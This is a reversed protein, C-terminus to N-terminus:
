GPAHHERKDRERFHARNTARAPFKSRDPPDVLYPDYRLVSVIGPSPKYLGAMLNILTTKGAGTRGAIAVRAGTSVTISVNSLLPQGPRYSFDVGRPEVTSESVTLVVFKSCLETAKVLSTYECIIWPICFSAM